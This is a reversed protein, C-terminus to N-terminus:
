FPLDADNPAPDYDDSPAGSEARFAKAGKAYEEKRDQWFDARVYGAIYAPLSGSMQQPVGVCATINAYTRGGGSTRHAVSILGHNGALKHLPVGKAIQDATYPKGRWQELFKRLNALEGMSVTFERSIDIFEGTDENKEGTRFVLAAKHALKKPKGAFEEVREGLDIADVCQAVFQGEPHTKYKSDSAKATITDAM